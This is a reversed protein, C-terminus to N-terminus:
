DVGYLQLGVTTFWGAPQTGIWTLGGSVVPGVGARAEPWYSRDGGFRASLSTWFLDASLPGHAGTNAIGRERIVLGGLHVPGLPLELWGGGSIAIHAGTIVSAGVDFGLVGAGLRV